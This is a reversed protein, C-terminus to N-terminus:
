MTSRVENCSDVHCVRAATPVRVRGPGINSHAIGSVGQRPMPHERAGSTHVTRLSARSFSVM